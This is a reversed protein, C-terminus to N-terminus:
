AKGRNPSNWPRRGDTPLRTTPDASWPRFAVSGDTRLAVETAPVAEGYFEVHAANAGPSPIAKLGDKQWDGIRNEWEQVDKQWQYYERNYHRDQPRMRSSEPEPPEEALIERLRTIAQEISQETM